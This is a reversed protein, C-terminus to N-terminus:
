QPRVRHLDHGFTCFRQVESLIRASEARKSLMNFMTEAREKQQSGCMHRSDKCSTKSHAPAFLWGSPSSFPTPHRHANCGQVHLTPTAASKQQQQSKLKCVNSPSSLDDRTSSNPPNGISDGPLSTFKPIQHYTYKLKLQQTHLLLRSPTSNLHSISIPLRARLLLSTVYQDIHNVLLHNIHSTEKIKNYSPVLLPPCNRACM